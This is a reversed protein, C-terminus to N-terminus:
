IVLFVMLDCCFNKGEFTKKKKGKKTPNRRCLEQKEGL